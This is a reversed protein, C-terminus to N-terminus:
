VVSKRDGYIWALNTGIETAPDGLSRRIETSRELLRITSMYDGFFARVLGLSDSVAAEGPLDGLEVYLSLARRLDAEADPNAGKAMLSLTARWRLLVGEEWRYELNIVQAAQNCVDTGAEYEHRTIHAECLLLLAHLVGRTEQREQFVRRALRGMGIAVELTGAHMSLRAECLTIWPYQEKTESPLFALVGRLRDLSTNRLWLPAMEEVVAAAEQLLGGRIYYSVAEEPMHRSRYWDGARQHVSRFTEGSDLVRLREQLFRQLLHHYRFSDPGLQTLLLNSSLLASLMGASDRRELVADCTVPSCTDLISSEEMFRQVEPSLSLFVEDALYSFLDAPLTSGLAGDVAGRRKITSALLVLAASWGETLHCVRELEPASLPVGVMQEMYAQTEAQTFRLDDETIEAAEHIVKLRATSFPLPSRSCIYLHLRESCYQLLGGVFQVVPSDKDILHFDDLVLAVDGTCDNLDALLLPLPHQPIGGHELASLLRSGGGLSRSVGLALYHLFQGEHSDTSDLQIWLHRGSSEALFNALTCTKGHGAAAILATLRRSTGEALLTDLHPRPLYWRSARPRSLKATLLLEGDM